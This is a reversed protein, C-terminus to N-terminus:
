LWSLRVEVRYMFSRSVWIIHKAFNIYLYRRVHILYGSVQLQVQYRHLSLNKITDLVISGWAKTFAFFSFRSSSSKMKVNYYSTGYM